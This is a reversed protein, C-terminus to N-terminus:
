IDSGFLDDVTITGLGTDWFPHSRMDQMMTKGSVQQSDACVDSVDRFELSVLLDLPGQDMGM